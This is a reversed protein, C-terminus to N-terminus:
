FEFKEFINKCVYEYVKKSKEGKGLLVPYVEVKKTSPNLTISFNAASGGSLSTDPINSAYYFNVIKRGPPYEVVMIKWINVNGRNSISIEGNSNLNVNWSVDECMDEVPSDFKLVKEKMFSRSWLFLIIFLAITIAILGVTAVVPSLGRKKM